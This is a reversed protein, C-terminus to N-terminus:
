WGQRQRLTTVHAVHHRSHWAYLQAHRALTFAEQLEPHYFARTFQADSMAAYLALWRAHLADLLNLSIGVPLAMDGLTAFTNEDYPKIAPTEETLALKIRMFGNMHSDAVHHVVQRVTWGGPRYPSDLQRDDLDSVAARMREPLAALDDLAARRVEPTWEAATFRGVPYRLEDLAITV